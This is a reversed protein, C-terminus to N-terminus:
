AGREKYSTERIKEWSSEVFPHQLGKGKFTAKRLRFGGRRSREALTQRLGQEVLAKLTTNEGQAVRRAQQLLNDAIQITTKMHSAMDYVPAGDFHALLPVADCAQFTYCYVLHTM